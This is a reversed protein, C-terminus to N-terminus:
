EAATPTKENMSVIYKTKYFQPDKEGVTVQFVQAPTLENPLLSGKDQASLALIYDHGALYPSRSTTRVTGDPDM